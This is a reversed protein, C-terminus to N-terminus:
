VKFQGAGDIKRTPSPSKASCITSGDPIDEIEFAPFGFRSARGSNKTSDLAATSYSNDGTTSYANSPDAWRGLDTAGLTDGDEEHNAAKSVTAM